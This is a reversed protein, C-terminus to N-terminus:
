IFVEDDPDEISFISAAPEESVPSVLMRCSQLTKVWFFVIICEIRIDGSKKDLKLM